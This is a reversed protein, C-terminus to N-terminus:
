TLLIDSAGMRGIGVMVRGGKVHWNFEKHNDSLAGLIALPWSHTYKFICKVVSWKPIFFYHLYLSLWADSLIPKNWHFATGLFVVPAELLKLRRM